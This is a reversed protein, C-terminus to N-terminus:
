IQIPALLYYTLFLTFERHELHKANLRKLAELVPGEEIRAEDLADDLTRLSQELLRKILLDRTPCFRYLTAKSIGIAKALEQLTARPHNVLALALPPLIATNDHPATTM